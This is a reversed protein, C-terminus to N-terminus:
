IMNENLIFAAAGSLVGGRRILSKEFVERVATGRLPRLAPSGRLYIIKM